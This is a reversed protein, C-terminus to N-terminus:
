PSLTVTVSVERHDRKLILEHVTKTSFAKHLDELTLVPAGDVMKLTDGEKLGAKAAASDPMVELIKLGGGSPLSRFLAGLRLRRIPEAKDTIWVFDAIGPDATRGPYDLPIPAIARYADNVREYTLKPVGVQDNIHGKGILVIIREEPAGSALTRALTEAMTEEWALQAELFTNFDTISGKLHERYQRRIYEQHAPDNEHFDEAVRNRESISLATLGSQAIKSVIERPANLGIIRIHNDRAWTLLGGYLRFPYGWVEDWKVERLFEEETILGKAYQDLLPQAERPLMELALTLSPNQAYLGKMVQLQVRHDEVSTHTEGVYIVRVHALEAMLSAFSIEKGTNTEIIDGMKIRGPLGHLNAQRHFVNAGCATQLAIVIALLFLKLAQAHM